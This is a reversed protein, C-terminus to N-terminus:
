QSSANDLHQKEEFQTAAIDRQLPKHQADLGLTKLCTLTIM